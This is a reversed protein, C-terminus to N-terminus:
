APQEKARLQYLVSGCPWGTLVRDCSACTALSGPLVKRSASPQPSRRQDMAALQGLRPSSTIV